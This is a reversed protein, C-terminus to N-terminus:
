FAQSNFYRQERTKLNVRGLGLGLDSDLGLGARSGKLDNGFYPLGNKSETIDSFRKPGM